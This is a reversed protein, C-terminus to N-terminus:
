RVLVAADVAIQPALADAANESPLLGAHLRLTLWKTDWIALNLLELMRGVNSVIQWVGDCIQACIGFCLAFASGLACAFALDLVFVPGFARVFLFDLRLRRGFARAFAAGIAFASGFARAFALAFHLCRGLRALLRWVM